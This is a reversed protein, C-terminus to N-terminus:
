SIMRKLEYMLELSERPSLDDVSITNLKEVIKTHITDNTITSETMNDNDFLSWNDNTPPQLQELNQLINNARNIVQQPIGALKAVYIGYSKAANGKVVKHLFIAKDQWEKIQMTYCKLHKLEQDLETLEHYHTAFLTRCKITSHIYELTAWAISLGDHTSTGRGVEDLIVFSKETAQNLILATEIMEIMFTSHGKSLNDSAGVRSFLKDVIGITASTAPVYCGIQALIIILANQRLFTSKGAMNPGTLLIINNNTITCDNAIFPENEQAHLSNEVVPHRGDQINMALDATIIPRCYNYDVALISHSIGVDIESITQCIRAIEENNDIVINVLEDYIKLEILTTQETANYLKQALENLEVTSYRTSNPMTQRHIFDYPVKDIHTNTVDIYYGLVNNHKIKLSPINHEKRYKDQLAIIFSKGQDRINIIEDLEQCYGVKIFGGDRALLPLKDINLAQRLIDIIAQQDSIRNNATKIAIDSSNALITKINQAATLGQLIAALDRPGGRGVCLRSISREIDPCDNLLTFIKNRISSNNIFFEIKDLRKEILEKDCMPSSLHLSLLRGGSATSTHDIANLLSGQSEGSLTKILELNRRTSADINVCDGQIFRQLTTLRPMEGKQTLQVYDLLSSAAMIENSSFSGFGDLTKVQYHEQLRSSSNKTDFRSNPLITLYKKHEKFIEYLETNNLIREPIVMESPNSRSILTSLQEYDCSEVYFEGTSIDIVAFSLRKTKTTEDDCILALFNHKKSDLLHEETLTGPTVIRVVERNVVAKHGRKKAQQPSETQECIAVKYGQKVLRALYNEYAHFPVGCMPIDQGNTKGRKTLTIDLAKAVKIADEFFLEYFDGMRYFLVCDQHQEKINHYQQMMPTMADYANNM